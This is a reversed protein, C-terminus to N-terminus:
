VTQWKTRKQCKAKRNMEGESSIKCLRSVPTKPKGSTGKYGSRLNLSEQREQKYFRRRAEEQDEVHPHHVHLVADDGVRVHSAVLDPGEM